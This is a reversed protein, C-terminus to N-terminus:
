EVEAAPLYKAVMEWVPSGSFDRALTVVSRGQNDKATLSAGRALLLELIELRDRTEMAFMVPTNKRYGKAEINAGHDLLWQVADKHRAQIALILATANGIDKKEPDAGATFLIQMLPINGARAADMFPTNQRFTHDDFDANHGILKEILPLDTGKDCLWRFFSPHQPSVLNINAGRELLYDVIASHGAEYAHKILHQALVVPPRNIDLGREVLLQLVELRGALVARLALPPGLNPSLPALPHRGLDPASYVSGGGDLYARVTEVDGTECAAFVALGAPAPVQIPPLGVAPQRLEDRRFVELRDSLWAAEDPTFCAWFELAKAFVRRADAHERHRDLFALARTRDSQGDDATHAITKGKGIEKEVSKAILPVASADGYEMLYRRAEFDTTGKHRFDKCAKLFLPAADPGALAALLHLAQRRVMTEDHSTLDKVPGLAVPHPSHILITLAAVLVRADQGPTLAAALAEPRAPDLEHEKLLARASDEFIYLDLMM